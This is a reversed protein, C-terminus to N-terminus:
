VSSYMFSNDRLLSIESLGIAFMFLASIPGAVMYGNPADDYRHKLECWWNFLVAGGGLVSWIIYDSHLAETAQSLCGFLIVCFLKACVGLNLRSLFHKM